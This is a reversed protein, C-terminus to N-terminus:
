LIPASWRLFADAVAASGRDDPHLDGFKSLYAHPPPCSLVAAIDFTRDVGPIEGSRIRRNVAEWVPLRDTKDHLPPLTFLIISLAPNRQKLQRVISCLNATMEEASDPESLLDNVGLCITVVDCLSAKQLWRGGTAADKARAYGLGLNWAAYTDQLALGIRGSWFAYGDNSTGCGQTISDGLFGLRRVNQKQVAFLNPKVANVDFAFGTNDAAAACDGEAVFCPIQSDPTFPISGAEEPPSAIAWTFVLYQGEPVCLAIEDSWFCEDPQVAKVTRGGFTVPTVSSLVSDPGASAAAYAACITWRGGSQNAKSISGDAFTSDVTNGYWFKWLRGTYDIPKIYSRYTVTKGREQCLMLNHSSGIVTNSVFGQWFDAPNQPLAEM